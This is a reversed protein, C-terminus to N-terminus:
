YEYDEKTKNLMKTGKPAFLYLGKGVCEMSAEVATIAGLVFDMSRQALSKEMMSINLMTPQNTRIFEVVEIVENMDTPCFIAMKNKCHSLPSIKECPRNEVVEKKKQPLINKAPQRAPQEEKIEHIGFGALIYDLFGM